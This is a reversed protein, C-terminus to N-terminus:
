GQGLTGSIAWEALAVLLAVGLSIGASQWKIRRDRSLNRSEDGSINVLVPFPRRRRIRGVTKIEADIVEQVRVLTAPHYYGEDVDMYYAVRAFHKGHRGAQPQGFLDVSAVKQQGAERDAYPRSLVISISELQKDTRQSLQDMTTPIGGVLYEITSGQAYGRLADSIATLASRNPIQAPQVREFGEERQIAPDAYRFPRWIRTADHLRETLEYLRL